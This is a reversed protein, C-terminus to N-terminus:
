YKEFRIYAAKYAYYAMDLLSIVNDPVEEELYENYDTSYLHEGLTTNDTYEPNIYDELWKKVDENGESPVSLIKITDM